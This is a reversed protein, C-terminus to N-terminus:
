PKLQIRGVAEPAFRYIDYSLMAEMGLVPPLRQWRPDSALAEYLDPEEVALTTPGRLCLFLPQAAATAEAILSQLDAPTKLLRIRPDYSLMQRAGGGFSATLIGKPADQLAPAVGRMVTVTERIPQRPIHMTSELAPSTLLSFGVVLLLPL